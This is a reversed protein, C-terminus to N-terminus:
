LTAMQNNLFQYMEFVEMMDNQERDTVGTLKGIKYKKMQSALSEGNNEMLDLAQSRFSPKRHYLLQACHAIQEVLAVTPPPKFSWTKTEYEEAWERSHLVTNLVTIRTKGKTLPDAIMDQNLLERLASVHVAMTPETSKKPPITQLVSSVVM